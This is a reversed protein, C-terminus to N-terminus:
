EIGGFRYTFEVGVQRERRLTGFFSRPLTYSAGATPPPAPPVNPQITGGPPLFYPVQLWRTVAVPADEDFLNRAYIGATWSDTQLGARLGVVTAEPIFALNHVQVPKESEYTADANLYILWDDNALPFRLDATVAATDKSTLPFQKGVISCDGQGNFNNPQEDAPFNANFQGGGSTLLFQDGDCGETYESDTRAYNFGLTLNDTAVFRLELEAGLVEGSGQNTVISTLTSTAGAAGIAVPTTLQQNTVDTFYLAVNATLRRELWETKAGLEYNKSEEEQFQPSGSQQGTRGNSGGPKVGESYIAYFNLIDSPRYRVTLRPTVHDFTEKDYSVPTAPTAPALDAFGKTDEEYRLEANVMWQANIDFEMSGFFADTYVDLFRYPSGSCIRGANPGAPCPTTTDPIGDPNAFNITRSEQDQEYHFAGLSWRLREDAPSAFRLEVSYDEYEDLDSACLFCIGGPVTILNVASHDSDSGTRREEDRWATSLNVSYGSGAIDWNGILSVIALDREVGSFAVGQAANYATAGLVTVNAPVGPLTVVDGVRPSTNLFIPQAGVDGCFYQNNNTSGSAPYSALSRTGPMCNNSEASQLFLARTGDRDESYGARLRLSLDSTPKFDLVASIADTAEGGVTEGNVQNTWQGDFELKRLTVSAGLTETFHGGLTLNAEYEDEDFHGAVRAGFEESPGRTVFNVAGSYTNRGYLASQPGKIVEIRELDQMDLSQIDGPYYVGDVFYAAGAEASPNTGALISSQGRIVPREVARGFAKSFVFGPTFRAVDEVSRIQRENLSEATFATVAVPAEQLSEQRKRATVLIEDIPETGQAAEQAEARAPALANVSVFCAAAAAIVPVLRM